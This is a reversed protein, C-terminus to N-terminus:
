RNMIWIFLAIGAAIALNVLWRPTKKEVPIWVDVIDFFVVQPKKKRKVLWIVIAGALMLLGIEQDTMRGEM